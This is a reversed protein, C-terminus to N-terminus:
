NKEKKFSKTRTDVFNNKLFAYFSHFGVSV